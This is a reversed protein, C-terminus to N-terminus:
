RLVTKILALRGGFSLVSGSDPHKNLLRVHDPIDDYMEGRNVLVLLSVEYEEIPLTNLFTVLAREAGARGMTNMVFLIKKM